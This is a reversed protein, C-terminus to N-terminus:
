PLILIKAIEFHAKADGLERKEAFSRFEAEDGKGVPPAQPGVVLSGSVEVTRKQVELVPQPAPETQLLAFREEESGVYGPRGIRMRDTNVEVRALSESLKRSCTVDLTM